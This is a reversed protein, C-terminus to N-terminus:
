GRQKKEKLEKELKKREEEKQNLYLKRGGNIKDEIEDCLYLPERFLDM